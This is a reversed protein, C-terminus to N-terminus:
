KMVVVESDPSDSANLMMAEACCECFWGGRLFLERCEASGAMLKALKTVRTMKETTAAVNMFQSTDRGIAMSKNKPKKREANTRHTIM